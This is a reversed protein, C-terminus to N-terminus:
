YGRQRAIAEVADKAQKLGVGTQARYVKIAEIKRGNELHHVVEPAAPTSETVGLERTLLDLRREIVKLRQTDRRQGRQIAALLLVILLLFPLVLALTDSM